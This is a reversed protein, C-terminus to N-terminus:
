RTITASSSAYTEDGEFVVTASNWYFLFELSYYGDHRTQLDFTATQWTSGSLYHVTLKVPKYALYASTDGRRLYGGFERNGAYSITITTQTKAVVQYQITTSNGTLDEDEHFTATILYTGGQPPCSTTVSFTGYDTTVVKNFGWGTVIEVPKGVVMGDRICRWSGYLTGFITVSQYAFGPKPSADLAVRTTGKELTVASIVAAERYIGFFGTTPDQTMYFYGGHGSNVDGGSTGWSNRVIWYDNYYWGVIVVFHGGFSGSTEHSYYHYYWFNADYWPFDTFVPMWVMVPGVRYLYSKINSTDTSIWTWDTIYYTRSLHDACRGSGCSTKIGVYPCCVEDPTGSSKLFNLTNSLYWGSCTGDSCSLVNQESLDFGTSPSGKHIQYQAEMDGVSAFAWCSGCSGQNKVPTMYNPGIVAVGDWGSWSFSDPVGGRVMIAQGTLPIAEPLGGTGYTQNWFGSVPRGLTRGPSTSGPASVFAPSNGIIPLLASAVIMLCLAFGSVYEKCHM